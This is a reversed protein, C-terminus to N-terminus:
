VGFVQAAAEDVTAITCSKAALDVLAAFQAPTLGYRTPTESIDHTFFVLWGPNRVLDEIMSTFRELSFDAHRLEVAFLNHPDVHGRNIGPLGGRSTAFRERLMAQAPPWSMTYPVAFNRPGRRGDCRSLFEGNADLDAALQALTFDALRKHSFTHCGLEHGRAALDACGQPSVLTRGPEATGALSGAIYYTGRAGARELIPAGNIWASDPVDDFTFSVIPRSTAAPRRPGPLHRVWRNALRDTLGGIRAPWLRKM